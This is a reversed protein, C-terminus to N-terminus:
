QNEVFWKYKELAEEESEAAVLYRVAEDDLDDVDVLLFDWRGPYLYVKYTFDCLHSVEKTVGNKDEEFHSCQELYQITYFGSDTREVAAQSTIIGSEENQYGLVLVTGDYEGSGNATGNIEVPTQGTVEGTKGNIIYCTRRVEVHSTNGLIHIGPAYFFWLAIGFAVVLLGTLVAAAIWLSKKKM